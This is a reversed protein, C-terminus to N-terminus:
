RVAHKQLVELDIFERVSAHTAELKVPPAVNAELAEVWRGLCICWYDGAQLGPFHYEPIPTSLDNGMRASFELFADTMRACIVHMGRDDGCTDCTGTRFFGTMPDTSCPVLSEGLVNRAM